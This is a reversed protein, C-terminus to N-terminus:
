PITTTYNLEKKLNDAKVSVPYGLTEELYYWVSGFETSGVGKGSILIIKPAKLLNFERRLM